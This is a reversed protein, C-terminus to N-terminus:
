SHDALTDYEMGSHGPVLVWLTYIGLGTGVPIKILSLVAAVIALTRGWSKRYLLSFGTFFALAAAGISLVLVLAAIGGMMPSMAFPFGHDPNFRDWFANNHALGMLFLSAGLGTLVRYGGYVCWLVGLTKVHHQVRGTYPAPPYTYPQPSAAYGAGYPAGAPAANPPAAQQPPPGQYQYGVPQQM